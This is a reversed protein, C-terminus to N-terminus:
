SVLDSVLQSVGSWQSILLLEWSTRRIVDRCLGCLFCREENNYDLQQNTQSAM